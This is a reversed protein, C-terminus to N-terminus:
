GSKRIVFVASTFSEARASEPTLLSSTTATISVDEVTGRTRTEDLMLLEVSCDRGRSAVSGEEESDRLSLLKVCITRVDPM